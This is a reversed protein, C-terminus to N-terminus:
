DRNGLHLGNKLGMEYKNGLIFRNAGVEVFWAWWGFNNELGDGFRVM